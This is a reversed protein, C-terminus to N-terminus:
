GPGPHGNTVAARLSISAKRATPFLRVYRAEVRTGFLIEVKTNRDGNPNAAFEEGNNVYALSAETIGTQIKLATVWQDLKAHGQTVVGGVTRISGLDIQYWHNEAVNDNPTEIFSFWSGM